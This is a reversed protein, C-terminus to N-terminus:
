ALVHFINLIKQIVILERCSIDRSGFICHCTVMRMGNDDASNFYYSRYFIIYFAQSLNGPNSRGPIGMGPHFIFCPRRGAVHCAEEINGDWTASPITSTSLFSRKWLIVAFRGILEDPAQDFCLKISGTTDCISNAASPFLRVCPRIIGCPGCDSCCLLM